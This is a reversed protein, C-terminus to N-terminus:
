GPSCRSASSRRARAPATRCASSAISSSAMVVGALVAVLTAPWSVLCAVSAYVAAQVLLMLITTARLYADAAARGRVGVANAFAGLPAHVYYEWRTRLLARILTLRLDTAIQAVSYGVQQNALLVLGAKLATGAIILVLLVEATAPLGVAHLAGVVAGNLWAAGSGSSGADANAGGAAMGLLPLLGSLSAGEALGALLLCSLMAATRWPYARAFVRLLRM